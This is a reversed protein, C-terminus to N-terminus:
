FKNLRMNAILEKKAQIASVTANMEREIDDLELNLARENKKRQRESMIQEHTIQEVKEATM